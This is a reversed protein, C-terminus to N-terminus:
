VNTNANISTQKYNCGARLHVARRFPHLAPDEMRVGSRDPRNANQQVVHEAAIDGELILLLDEAAGQRPPIHAGFERVTLQFDCKARRGKFM